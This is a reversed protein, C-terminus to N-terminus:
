VKEPRSALFGLIGLGSIFRKRIADAFFDLEVLDLPDNAIAVRQAEVDINFM